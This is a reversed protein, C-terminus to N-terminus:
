VYGNAFKTFNVANLMLSKCLGVIRQGNFKLAKVIKQGAISNLLVFYCYRSIITFLVAFTVQAPLGFYIKDGTYFPPSWLIYLVLFGLCRILCGLVPGHDSNLAAIRKFIQDALIGGEEGEKEKSV